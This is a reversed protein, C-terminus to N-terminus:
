YWCSGKCRTCSSCADLFTMLGIAFDPYESVVVKFDEDEELAKVHVKTAQIVADRIDNNCSNTISYIEMIISPYVEAKIQQGKLQKQLLKV